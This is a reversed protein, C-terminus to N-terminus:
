TLEQSSGASTYKSQIIYIISLGAYTHPNVSFQRITQTGQNRVITPSHLLYHNIKPAQITVAEAM